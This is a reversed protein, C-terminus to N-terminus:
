SLIGSSFFYGSIDMKHLHMYPSDSSFLFTGIYTYDTIKIDTCRIDLHRSINVVPLIDINTENLNLSVNLVIDEPVSIIGSADLDCKHDFVMNSPLTSFKFNAFSVFGTIHLKSGHIEYNKFYECEVYDIVDQHTVTKTSM